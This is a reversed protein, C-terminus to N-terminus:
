SQTPLFVLVSFKIRSTTSSEEGTTSHGGIGVGWVNIGAGIKGESTESVVVAVDFEIEQGMGGNNLYYKPGSSSNFDTPNVKAGKSKAYSQAETVGDIIETISKSIFDKLEM